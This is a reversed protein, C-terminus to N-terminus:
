IGGRNVEAERPRRKGGATGWKKKKQAKPKGRVAWTKGKEVGRTSVPDSGKL